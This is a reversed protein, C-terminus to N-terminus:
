VTGFHRAFEGCGTGAVDSGISVVEPGEQGVCVVVGAFKYQM